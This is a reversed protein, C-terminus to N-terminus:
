RCNWGKSVCGRGHGLGRNQGARRAVESAIGRLRDPCAEIDAAAIRHSTGFGNRRGDAVRINGGPVEGIQKFERDARRTLTLDAAAATRNDGEDDTADRVDIEGVDEKVISRRIEEGIRCIDSGGWDRNEVHRNEAARKIRQV